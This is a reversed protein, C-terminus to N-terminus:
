TLGLAGVRRSEQLLSTRIASTLDRETTVNGAVNVTVHHTTAAKHSPPTAAAGAAKVQGVTTMGPLSKLINGIRDVEAQLAKEKSQMGKVLADMSAIGQDYYQGAIADAATKGADAVQGMLSSVSAVADPGKDLLAKAMAGGADAGQSAIQSILDKSAGEKALEKLQDGFAKAQEVQAKLKAIMDGIPDASQAAQADAFMKATDAMGSTIGASLSAALDAREKKLGDLDATMSAIAKGVEAAAAKATDRAETLVEKAHKKAEKLVEAAHKKAVEAAHKAARAAADAAHKAAAAAKDAASKSANASKTAAAQAAKSAKTVADSAANAAAVSGAGSGGGGGGHHQTGPHPAGTPSVKHSVATQGTHMPKDSNDANGTIIPGGGGKGKGGGGGGGVGLFGGIASVAHGLGSLASSVTDIASSFEDFIPKCADYAAHVASKIGGWISSWVSSFAHLVPVIVAGLWHGIEHFVPKLVDTWVAHLFSSIAHWIAHWHDHVVKVAVIIATLPAFLLALTGVILRMHEAIWDKVAHVVAMVAGWISHWHDHLLKLAVVLIAFEPAIVALIGIILKVHERVFGSVTEWIEHWHKAFLVLAAGIAVFILSLGGTSIAIGTETAIISALVAMNTQITLALFALQEAAAIALSTVYAGIAVLLAGGIIGALVEAATKHKVFWGVIAEIKPILALGIREGLNEVNAKLVDLKGAFTQSAAAAQGGIAKTLGAVIDKSTTSAAAVKDQAKAVALTASEYAKHATSGANAAGPVAKLIATVKAQADHLQKNAQALKLASGAAVPLDIGLAKLPRLQGEEAKAVLTAADALGLHKYRALDAALTMQGMAKTPSGLATTMNGLAAEVEDNSFGLQAFKGSLAKVKPELEEMSGGTNKIAQALRAHAAEGEIGLKVSVAALGVTLASVGVLAAKGAAQLKAYSDAGHKSLHDIESRAEGMKAQFERINAKLEVFVPAIAM